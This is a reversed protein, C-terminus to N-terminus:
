GRKYFVRFYHMTLGKRKPHAKKGEYCIMVDCGVSVEQMKLNLQAQGFVGVKKGDNTQIIYLMNEKGNRMNVFSRKAVLKGELTDGEKEFRKIESIGGAEVYGNLKQM